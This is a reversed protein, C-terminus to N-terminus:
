GWLDFEYSITASITDDGYYTHLQNIRLPRNASQRNTLASAGVDVEPFLFSRAMVVNARAEDYRALALAINPNGAEIKEELGNLTEDGYVMWWRGRPTADAPSAPTWPGIEKYATPVTTVPPSYPPALSCGTLALASGALAFLKSRPM